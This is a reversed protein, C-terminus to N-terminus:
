RSLLGVRDERGCEPDHDPRRRPTRLCRRPGGRPSRTADATASADPIEERTIDTCYCPTGPQQRWSGALTGADFGTDEVLAVEANRDRDSDAAIALAIRDPIGM